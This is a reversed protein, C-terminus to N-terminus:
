SPGECAMPIWVPRSFSPRYLNRQEGAQGVACSLVPPPHRPPCPCPLFCFSPLSCFSLLSLIWTQGPVGLRGGLGQGPKFTLLFILFLLLSNIYPQSSWSPLTFVLILLQPPPLFLRKAVSGGDGPSVTCTLILVLLQWIPGTLLVAFFQLCKAWM